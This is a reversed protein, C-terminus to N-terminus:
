VHASNWGLLHITSFNVEKTNQRITEISQIYSYWRSLNLYSEKELPSLQLMINNLSYFVVLDALSIRQGILYSRSELYSNLELCAAYKDRKSTSRIFLNAFDFFQKTQYFDQVSQNDKNQVENHFYNLISSYGVIKEKENIQLQIINDETYSLKGKIPYKLYKAVRTIETEVTM